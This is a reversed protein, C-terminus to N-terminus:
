LEDRRIRRSAAYQEKATRPLAAIGYVAAMLSYAFASCDIGNKTTGGYHYRTGYWDNMFDLLKGNDLEEVRADELIAYKFQLPTFKEM